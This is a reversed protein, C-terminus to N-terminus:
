DVLYFLKNEQVLSNSLKVILCVDMNSSAMAVNERPDRPFGGVFFPSVVNISKQNGGSRGEGVEEEDIVLRGRTQRRWFVVQLYFIRM